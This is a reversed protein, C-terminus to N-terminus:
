AVQGVRGSAALKFVSVLKALASTQDHMGQSAAGAQEVLAANQQTVEDMQAIARNIQEIGASQEQSASSIEGMIDTVRKISDVVEQMTAGAAGVLNTGADVKAVSEEILAKIEKAAAASRQALGRVETAVVAFGRGQEGARAAEVAANLALINTQFAISDIVSIIDAIKKASDSITGMTDVVESVVAGGKMAVQSASNVLGNAQRANDANQKVTSTLEEMSSATQELASAQEETRSSLDLTGSALQGAAVNIVESGQRVETVIKALSSRMGELSILLQAAEDSGAVAIQEALDGDAIRHALAVARQLPRTISRVVIWALLVALIVVVSLGATLVYTETRLASERAKLTTTLEAFALDDLKFQADIAETFQTFFESPELTFQEAKVIESQALQMRKEAADFAAQMTEGLNSKLQPSAQLAKDLSNKVAHNLQTANELLAAFAIRDELTASKQTLISAGRARMRGLVETLQPVNNVTANILYHSAADQDFALEFYDLFIDNLKLLQSILATHQTFSEGPTMSAQSVKGALGPWENEIKEWAATAPAHGLKKVLTGLEAYAKDVEDQKARRKPNTAENGNLVIASLGRHQQTLRMAKLLSQTPAVGSLEMADAGVDKNVERIYLVFPPLTVTLAFLGLLAFKQWLLLRSLIRNM